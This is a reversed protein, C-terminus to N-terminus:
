CPLRRQTFHRLILALAHGTFRGIARQFRRTSALIPEPSENFPSGSSLEIIPAVTFGGLFHKLCIAGAPLPRFFASTVLSPTTPQRFQIEGFIPLATKRNSHPNCTRANDISHSWTYSSLLEFGRFANKCTSLSRTICSSADSLQADVSNFPV